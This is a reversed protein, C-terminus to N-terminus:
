KGEMKSIANVFYTFAIICYNDLQIIYHHAGKSALYVFFLNLKCDNSNSYKKTLYTDTSCNLKGAYIFVFVIQITVYILSVWFRENVIDM